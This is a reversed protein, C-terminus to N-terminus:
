ICQSFVYASDLYTLTSTGDTRCRMYSTVASESRHCCRARTPESFIAAIGTDLETPQGVGASDSKRVRYAAGLGQKLHVNLMGNAKRPPPTM